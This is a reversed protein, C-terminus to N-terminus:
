VQEQPVFVYKLVSPNGEVLEFKLCKGAYDLSNIDAAPIFVCEPLPRDDEEDVKVCEITLNGAEDYTVVREFSLVRLEPRLMESYYVLLLLMPYVVCVIMWAVIAYRLDIAVGLLMFAVVPLAIAAVYRWVLRGIVARVYLSKPLNFPSTTFPETLM